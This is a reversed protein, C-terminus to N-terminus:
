FEIIFNLYPNFSRAKLGHFVDPLSDTCVPRDKCPQSFFLTISSDYSAAILIVGSFAILAFHKSHEAPEIFSTLNHGTWSQSSYWYRIPCLGLRLPNPPFGGDWQAISSNFVSLCPYTHTHFEFYFVLLHFAWMAVSPYGKYFIHLLKITWKAIFPVRHKPISTIPIIYIM